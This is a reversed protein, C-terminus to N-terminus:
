RATGATSGSGSVNTGDTRIATAPQLGHAVPRPFPARTPAGHSCLMAADARRALRVAGYASSYRLDGVFADALRDELERHDIASETGMRLLAAGARRHINTASM